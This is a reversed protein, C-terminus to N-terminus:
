KIWISHGPIYRLTLITHPFIKNSSIFYFKINKNCLVYLCSRVYYILTSVQCNINSRNCSWIQRVEGFGKDSHEWVKVSRMKKGSGSHNVWQRGLSPKQANVRHSHSIESTFPNGRYEFVTCTCSSSNYVTYLSNGKFACVPQVHVYGM